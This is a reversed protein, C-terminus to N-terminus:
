CNFSCTIEGQQTGGGEGKGGVRRQSNDGVGMLSRGFESMSLCFGGELMDPYVFPFLVGQLSIEGGGFFFLFIFTHNFMKANLFASCSIM